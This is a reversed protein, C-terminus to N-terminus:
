VPLVSRSTCRCNIEEGPQIYKGGILCGKDVSFKKGDAAVHLPRPHKGGGSHMWIAETIGLEMRRTRTVAATAKNNQDRAILVARDAVKPYLKRIDKTAKQLDRGATYSRMVSGQVQQLYKVPISKILAVNEQTTAALVDKMAPTMQFKVAFGADKLAAKFAADTTSMASNAFSAAVRPAIENFRKTWQRVLKRIERQMIKSPAEDLALVAPPAEKYRAELWYEVSNGMEEILSMLQRKYRAQVGVNAHVARATARQRNNQLAKEQSTTIPMATSQRFAGAAREM